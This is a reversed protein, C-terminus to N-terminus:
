EPLAKCFFLTLLNKIIYKCSQDTVQLRICVLSM